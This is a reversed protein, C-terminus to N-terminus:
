QAYRFGGVVCDATRLRKVKVMGERDGSHYPEDKLKAVVGDCGFDALDTMWARAQAPDNTAPSLRLIQKLESSKVARAFFTALKQKRESLPLHTIDDGDSDVLLDFCFFQAPTEGSLR